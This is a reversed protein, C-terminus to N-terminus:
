GASSSSGSTSSSTSWAWRRSSASRASRTTRGGVILRGALDEVTEFTGSPPRVAFKAKNAWALLGPINVYRLAEERAAEISTPPIVAITLPKRGREAEMERITGVRKALTGMGIRGPM